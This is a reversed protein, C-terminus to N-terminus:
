CKRALDLLIRRRGDSCNKENTAIKWYGSDIVVTRRCMPLDLSAESSKLQYM